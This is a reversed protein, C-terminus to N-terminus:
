HANHYKEAIAMKELVNLKMIVSELRLPSSNCISSTRGSFNWYKIGANMTEKHNIKRAKSAVALLFSLFSFIIALKPM